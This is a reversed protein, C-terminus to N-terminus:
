KRAEIWGIYNILIDGVAARCNGSFEYVPVVYEQSGSLSDMWYAATIHDITIETCRLPIRSSGKGAVLEAYAQEASKVPFDKNLEV